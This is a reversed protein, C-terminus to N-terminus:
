TCRHRNLAAPRCATLWTSAMGHLGSTTSPTHCVRANPTSSRTSWSSKRGPSVRACGSSSSSKASRASSTTYREDPMRVVRRIADGRADSLEQLRKAIADRGDIRDLVSRTFDGQGRLWNRVPASQTDELWRYPDPVTTGHFTAPVHRVEAQPPAAPTSTAATAHLHALCALTLGALMLNSVLRM